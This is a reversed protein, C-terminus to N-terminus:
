GYVGSNGWSNWTTPSLLGNCEDDKGTGTVQAIAIERWYRTLANLLLPNAFGRYAKEVEFELPRLIM